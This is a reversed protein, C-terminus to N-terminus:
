NDPDDSRFGAGRHSGDCFPQNGTAGCRCLATNGKDGSAEIEHGESDTIRVPGMVILPGDKRCRITVDSM